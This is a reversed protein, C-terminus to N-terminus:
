EDLKIFCVQVDKISLLFGHNQCIGDFKVATIALISLWQLDRFYEKFFGMEQKSIM